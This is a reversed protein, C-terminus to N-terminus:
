AREMFKGTETNVKVKEGEKIYEPVQVELGNSLIAPKTRGTASAAKMGPVCEAITLVVSSPMQITLVEGDIMMAQINEMGDQLYPLQAEIAASNLLYQNYDESDMFTFTDDERYLYSCNRRELLVEKLLDGGIFTEEYKGGGPLQSFRVKYLTNAGRSSPSRVDISHVSYYNNNIEVVMGKKLESAKPM